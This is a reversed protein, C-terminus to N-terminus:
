PVEALPATCTSGTGPVAAFGDPRWEAVVCRVAFYINWTFRTRAVEDTNRTVMTPGGTDRYVEFLRDDWADHNAQYDALTTGAFFQDLREVADSQRTSAAWAPGGVLVAAGLGISLVVRAIRGLGIRRRGLADGVLLVVAGAAAGILAGSTNAVLDMLDNVGVGVLPQVLEVTLSLLLAAGATRWPARWLLTAFCAVPLFLVVNLWVESGVRGALVREPQWQALCQWCAGSWPERLLTVVLVLGLSVLFGFWLLPRWRRAPGAGPLGAGAGGVRSRVHAPRQLRDRLLWSAGAALVVVVALWGLVRVTLFSGM